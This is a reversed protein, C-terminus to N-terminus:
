RAIVLLPRVPLGRVGCRPHDATAKFTRRATPREPARPLSALDEPRHHRLRARARRPHISTRWPRAPIRDDGVFPTTLPASNPRRDTLRASRRPRRRPDRAAPLPGRSRRAPAVRGRNGRAAPCRGRGRPELAQMLSNENTSPFGVLVAARSPRWVRHSPNQPLSTLRCRLHEMDTNKTEIMLFDFAQRQWSRPSSRTTITLTVGFRRGLPPGPKCFRCLSGGRAHGPRRHRWGSKLRQWQTWLSAAAPSMSSAMRYMGM